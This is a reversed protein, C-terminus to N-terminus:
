GDEDGGSPHIGSYEQLAKIKAAAVLGQPPNRHSLPWLRKLEESARARVQDQTDQDQQQFWKRLEVRHQEHAQNEQQERQEAVVRARGAAQVRAAVIGAEEQRANDMDPRGGNGRRRDCWGAGDGGAAIEELADLIWNERQAPSRYVNAPDHHSKVERRWPDSWLCRVMVQWVRMPDLDQEVLKQLDKWVAAYRTARVDLLQWRTNGTVHQWVQHMEELPAGKGPPEASQNVPPETEGAPPGTPAGGSEPPPGVPQQAPPGGSDPPPPPGTPIPDQPVGHFGHEPAWYPSGPVALFYGNSTRSGDPRRREVAHTLGAAELDRLHGRATSVACEAVRACTGVRPYCWGVEDAHDALCLLVLKRTPNGAETAMAWTLATLSVAPGAFTGGGPPLVTTTSTVGLM